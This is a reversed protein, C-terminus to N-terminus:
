ATRMSAWCKSQWLAQLAARLREVGQQWTVSTLILPPLLRVVGNRTPTVILGQQQCAETLPWVLDHDSLEIALMLGIGRVEAVLEPFQQQLKHLDTLAEAGLLRVHQSMNQQKLFATVAAAVACSLPNGCYTGGHDGLEVRAAHEERMALAAFPLGGAIGKGMTMMDPVLGYRECAFFEGTRCYGTQVEDVILLCGNNKCMQELSRLYDHDLARVGGEGQVLEIIVAALPVQMASQLPETDDAPIFYNGSLRPLYRAPNEPGGSVSLAALTRGHFSGELALVSERGTIKRALKLAADNAEAGSNAFWIKTLADPLVEKMASMLAARAPSYTFGSNPNQIIRSAQDTLAELIVPHNHGLCVVGWGSSFDLLANGKEDWVTVGDGREIVLPQRRTVALGYTDETEQVKM